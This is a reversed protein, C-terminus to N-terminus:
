PSTTFGSSATADADETSHVVPSAAKRLRATRRDVTTACKEIDDRRTVPQSYKDTLHRATHCVLASGVVPSDSGDRHWEFAWGTELLAVRADGKASSSNGLHPKSPPCYDNWLRASRCAVALVRTKRLSDTAEPTRPLSGQSNGSELSANM